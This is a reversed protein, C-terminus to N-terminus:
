SQFIMRGFLEKLLKYATMATLNHIDRVPNYEVLDAGILPVPLQHILDILQRTTCGGPEYHSVGPAYAPDLVDLDLSLYLPGRLRSVSFKAWDRMEITQIGYRKIQERQHATLTRIGLQTLSDVLGHEMIRAFPSAHSYPNADFDAYLDAHADLHLVHLEGYYARDAQLIPYTISHDGGLCILRHGQSLAHSVGAQIDRFILDPSTSLTLNGLDDFSTHSSVAQGTEIYINASGKREMLRIRDPALAAGRLFSSNVDCPIGLLAPRM